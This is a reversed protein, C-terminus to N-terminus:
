GARETVEAVILQQFFDGAAPHTYNIPRPLHTEIAHDGHLHNQRALKGGVFELAAKAGFGPSSGTQLMGVDNRNVFHALLVAKLVKRHVIDLPATQSGQHAFVWQRSIAGRVVDFSNGLRDLVSM